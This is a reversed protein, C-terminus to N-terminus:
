IKFRKFMKNYKKNIDNVLNYGFNNNDEYKQSMEEFSSNLTINGSSCNFCEIFKQLDKEEEEERNEEDNEKYYFGKNIEKFDDNEELKNKTAINKLKKNKKNRNKEEGIQEVSFIVNKFEEFTLTKTLFNMIKTWSLNQELGKYNLFDNEKLKMLFKQAHSRIQTINRSSVYNQIKKWNNGFKLVAEAFRKQEEKSWRGNNSKENELNLENPKELTKKQLLKVSPSQQKTLIFKIKPKMILSSNPKIEELLSTSDIKSLSFIDPTESSLLEFLNKNEINFEEM